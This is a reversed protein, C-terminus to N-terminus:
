PALAQQRQSEIFAAAEAETKAIVHEEIKQLDTEETVHFTIWDTEEIIRLLRRTGPETIGFYPGSMRMWGTEKQYVDCSGRLIVFPHQHKHIKSLWRSGAPMVLRRCYLGPTFTHQPEVEIVEMGKMIEHIQDLDNPESLEMPVSTVLDPHPPAFLDTDALTM